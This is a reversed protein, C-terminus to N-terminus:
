TLAGAPPEISWNLTKLFRRLLLAPMDHTGNNSANMEICIVSGSQPEGFFGLAYGVGEGTHGYWGQIMGIGLGYGDYVPGDTAPRTVLRETQPQANILTGQSLAAAWKRADLLGGAMAGAPDLASPNIDTSVFQGNEFDYGQTAPTPLGVADLYFTDTLGVPTYIMTQLLDAIPQGAIQEAVAGLLLTNTNCYNYRSGPPTFINPQAIAAQILEDLTFHQLPDAILRNIIADTKVYDTLGSTMGALHRLKMNDGNPVGVYYMSIPDDLTLLRNQAMQLILTVTFSKTVSRWNFHDAITLARDPNVTARGFAQVWSSTPTWIGVAVGPAQALAQVGAVDAALQPAVAAPDLVTTVPTTYVSNPNDSCGAAILSDPSSSFKRRSTMARPVNSNKESRKSNM